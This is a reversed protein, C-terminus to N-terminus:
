RYLTQFRRIAPADNVGDRGGASLNPVTAVIINLVLLQYVCFHQLRNDALL